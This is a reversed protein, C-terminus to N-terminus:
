LLGQVSGHDHLEVFALRRAPGLVHQPDQLRSAWTRAPDLDPVHVPRSELLRAWPWRAQRRRIHLRLRHRVFRAFRQSAEYYNFTGEPYYEAKYQGGHLFAAHVTDIDGELAQLWNCERLTAQVRCQGEYAAAEIGPLPPPEDRTGMYVWILGGYEKVPYSRAKIRSKFNSEAPENPMDVCNGDVDFKWGHYVCRIGSEENRGFFLSAGRHPCLNSILGPRGASDRFGILQEGLMMVRVPDCDAAPLESAVMAPLWYERIFSGCPTGPGTATLYENEETSLM